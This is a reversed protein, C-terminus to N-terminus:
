RPTHPIFLIGVSYVMGLLGMIAFEVRWGVPFRAFGINLALTALFGASFTPGITSILLGRREKPSIESVYLPMVMYSISYIIRMILISKYRFHIHQM